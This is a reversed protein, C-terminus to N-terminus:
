SLEENYDRDNNKEGTTEGWWNCNVLNKINKKERKRKRFIEVFNNETYQM